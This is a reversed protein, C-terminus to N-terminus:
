YGVAQWDVTRAVGSGANLIQVTFGTTTVSTIKETDGSTASQITTRIIPPVMYPQRFNVTTGGAAVSVGQGLEARDPMDVSVAFSSVVPINTIVTTTLMLRFQLVQATYDGAVFPQWDSWTLGDLSTRIQPQVGVGAVSEGDFSAIANFDLISDFLSSTNVANYEVQAACRSTQVTGLNVQEAMAYYGEPRAGGYTDINAWSDWDTLDDVLGAMDLYLKGALEYCSTKSGPWTAGDDAVAIANYNALSPITTIVSAATASKRLGTDVSKILYIGDLAAPITITTALTTGIDIANEWGAAPNSGFRVAYHLLDVDTVSDWTLILGGYSTASARLNLVDAPPATKGLITIGAKAALDLPQANGIWGVTRVQVTYTTGDTVPLSISTDSVTRYGQSVGNVLVDIYRALSNTVPHWTADMMTVIQGSQDKILRESLALGTVIPLPTSSYNVTPLVPLMLDTNYVSENYDTLTIKRKLDGAPDIGVVRMPKISRDIEGFAYVDLQEPITAFPTAISITDTTSPANSVTREVVTGDLLRLMISYAKGSEIVVEKDLVVCNSTASVIRGGEGWLPVDHQVQIVDGLTFAISDIDMQLSVVRTLNQTTALYYRCHRWIESPRIVGQLPLSASGWEGPADPNIVTFKDRELDKELNLFDAEISGARNEMPLFTEEFSDLGINGVSILAVPDAPKDIAVTITTGRWYCTARGIKAVNLAADWMSQSSDFSGNYTLRRETGGSGDPVLDDCYQSWEYFRALDLNAPDHARYELVNLSNDFVPQTLIDFCVWAPNSTAGVTWSSGNYVRCFKGTTRCEFTFSGSLQDTALARLGILAQGPYTFDDMLIEQVSTLYFDDGYRADNKDPSLKTVRIEYKGASLGWARYLYRVTGREAASATVYPLTGEAIRIPSGIWRWTCGDQDQGEYHSNPDSGGTSSEQWYAPSPGGSEDLSHDIYWFGLSWYGGDSVRYTYPQITLFLWTGGVPRYEVSFNVSLTTLSGTDSYYYLGNPFSVEIELADFDDDVTTYIIPSGYSVKAALPYELRTDGFNSIAPQDLYGLRTYLEIGHYNGIPQGNLKIDTFGGMIGEGLSVLVNLYQNRGIGERWVGIINGHLKCIGYHWPIVIGQQQTNQPNWSYSNSKDISGYGNLSPPNITGMGIAANLLMSGGIMVAAYTLGFAAYIGVSSTLYGGMVMAGVVGYSVISAVIAIIVMGVMRLIDKGGGGGTLVPVMVVQQGPVLTTQTWQDVPIQQGNVSVALSMSERMQLIKGAHDILDALTQGPRYQWTITDQDARNLPNYVKTLTIDNV